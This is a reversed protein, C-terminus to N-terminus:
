GRASETILASEKLRTSVLLSLFLLGILVALSAMMSGTEPSKFSDMAFIFVIGSIQGIQLM